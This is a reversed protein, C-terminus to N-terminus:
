NKGNLSESLEKFFIIMDRPISKKKNCIKESKMLDRKGAREDNWENLIYQKELTHTKKNKLFIRIKYKKVINKRKM